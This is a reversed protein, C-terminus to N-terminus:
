TNKRGNSPDEGPSISAATFASGHGIYRGIEDRMTMEPLPPCRDKESLTDSLEAEALSLEETEANVFTPTSGAVRCPEIFM